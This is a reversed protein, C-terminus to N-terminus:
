DKKIQDHRKEKKQEKILNQYEKSISTHPNGARLKQKIEETSNEIIKKAREFTRGSMGVKSSVLDAAKGKADSPAIPENSQAHELKRKAALEQEIQLLAM